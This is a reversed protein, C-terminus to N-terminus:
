MKNTLGNIKNVSDLKATVPAHSVLRSTERRGERPVRPSLATPRGFITEERATM